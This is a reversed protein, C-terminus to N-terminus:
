RGWLLGPFGRNVTTGGSCQSSLCMEGSGHREGAGTHCNEALGFGIATDNSSCDPEQNSSFGFRARRYCYPTNIGMYKCNPQYSWGAYMQGDFNSGQQFSGSNFLAVATQVTNPQAQICHNGETPFCGRLESIPLDTFAQLKANSTTDTDLSTENLLNTDTWYADDYYFDTDGATKLLLTWGGGDNTMDCYVDFAGSGVDIVYTGDPATSRQSLIDQCSSGACTAGSGYVTPPDVLSDCDNDVGDCVETAGPQISADGDNCDDDCTSFGDGDVDASERTSDADDCDGDCTTSGDGDVDALELSSDADDCDGDCLTYGDGDSDLINLASDTDDCDGACTSAGDGDGDLPNLAADSDDCDSANSVHGTPETCATTSSILSGFGDGDADIYFPTANIADEDATGDCDNDVGDCVEFSAPSTTASFDDCDSSNSVYGTPADCSQQSVSGNGYGDGDSDEYWTAGVGEDVETDCDNDAGDCIESGGPHSNADLDDCDDTNSVFGAPAACATQQYQQGGYGDGDSDGYFVTGGTLSPDADDVLADCDNDIGDCTEDADPNVDALTDDCDTDDSVHGSPAACAEVSTTADGFGDSDGDAYWSAADVADDEDVTGDCDNDAGDCIETALPSIAAVSDDCEECAAFGDGDEDAYGVSGDCNYDAPDTCDSEDAGPYFSVDFDNCDTGSAVMGSPADCAERSSDLNGFGDGDADTYWTRTGTVGADEDDTLGDCDNDIGDCTEVADPNVSADADDCDLDASFGDGDADGGEAQTDALSDGTETGTGKSVDDTNRCAPLLLFVLFLTRM